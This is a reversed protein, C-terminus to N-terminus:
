RRWWAWSRASLPRRLTLASMSTGDRRLYYGLRRGVASFGQDAYLARATRNDEAVELFLQRAGQAAARRMIAALLTRAVGRRRFAEAVGLSLLEAEDAALRAIAFGVPLPEASEGSTDDILALLAFTGPSRLVEGMSQPSWADDFCGTHLHSLVAADALGAEVVLPEDSRRLATSM